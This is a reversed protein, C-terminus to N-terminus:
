AAVFDERLEANGHLSGSWRVSGRSSVTFHRSLQILENTVGSRKRTQVGFRCTKLHFVVSNLAFDRWVDCIVRVRELM